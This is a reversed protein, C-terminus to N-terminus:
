GFLLLVNAPPSGVFQCGILFQDGKQRCSRVQVQVGLTKEHSNRPRITLQTGRAFPVRLLIGLGTLSRDAVFGEIRRDGEGRCLLVPVSRGARRPATRRERASGSVFPDPAAKERPTSRVPKAAAEPEAAKKAALLFAQIEPDTLACTFSCGLLWKNGSQQKAWEAKLLLPEAEAGLLQVVVVAGTKCSRDVILALGGKGIDKLEGPRSERDGLVRWSVRARPRHRPGKRREPPAASAASKSTLREM